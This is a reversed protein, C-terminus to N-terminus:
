QVIASLNTPPAPGQTPSGDTATFASAGFDANPVSDSGGQIYFGMGPSGTRFTTDTISVIAVGNKYATILGTNSVTAKLVDGDVCGASSGILQTYGNNYNSSNTLPGNWRVIQLYPGGPVVSCNIEYGTINNATITTLLRVEVEEYTAQPSHAIHITCKRARYRVGRAVSCAPQIRTLRQVRNQRHGSLSDRRRAATLGVM